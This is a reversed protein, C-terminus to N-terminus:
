VAAIGTRESNRVDQVSIRSLTKELAEDSYTQRGALDGENVPPTAISEDEESSTESASASLSTSPPEAPVSEVEAKEQEPKAPKEEEPESRKEGPVPLPADGSLEGPLLAITPREGKLWAERRQTRKHMWPGANSQMCGGHEACTCKGGLRAPLADEDILELLKSKYDSGHITVKSATEKAIWPKMVNWITSFGRPANVIALRAVTEPFYDQSVQFSSRSFDKVQWFQSIGFGSLDVVVFTGMIRKGAAESAAPLVERPLAECNVIVTQWFRELTMQKQLKDLNIGGFHHFNLPHGEKDTKHFYLPWCDFVHEREPYDFPDIQRYLEDIGVDEVTSRWHQCNKWMLTSHKLNFNRARLFRLLTEDDTGITDGDHILGEKVLGDRFEDLIAQKDKPVM